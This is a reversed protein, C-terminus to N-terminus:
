FIIKGDIVCYREDVIPVPVIWPTHRSDIYGIGIGHAMTRRVKRRQQWDVQNFDILCGFSGAVRLKGWATPSATMGIRHVHNIVVNEQVDDMSQHVAYKGCRGVDHTVMLQGLWVDSNYPIWKWGREGLRLLEPVTTGHMGVLIPAHQAIYKPLRLEHNGEQFFKNGAGIEDYIDLVENAADIEDQIKSSRTPDKFHRSAPHCDIFDGGIVIATAEGAGAGRIHYKAARIAVKVAAKSHYPVHNDPFIVFRGIIHPPDYAESEPRWDIWTRDPTLAPDFTPPPAPPPSSPHRISRVTTPEREVSETSVVPTPPPELLPEPPPAVWGGLSARAEAAMVEREAGTYPGMAVPVTLYSGLSRLNCCQRHGSFLSRIAHYTRQVGTERVILDCAEQLTGARTAFAAMARVDACTAPSNRNLVM